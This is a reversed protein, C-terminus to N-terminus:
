DDITAELWQEPEGPPVWLELPMRQMYVLRATELAVTPAQEYTYPCGAIKASEKYAWVVERWREKDRLEYKSMWKVLKEAGASGTRYCGPINDTGDGSIAQQWFFDRADDASVDYFVKKQYNYHWGPIQDLDKDTTSVVYPACSAAMMHARISVEDDAEHGVVVLAGWTDTLFDRIAQYHHPKHSAVRNGKYQRVTALKERFNGPGTLLVAIRPDGVKFKDKTAGVISKIQQSVLHLAHTVPEPVVVPERDLLIWTKHKAMFRKMSEAATINKRKNKPDPRPAFHAEHLRGKTDEFVARYELRQAAFGSRYVIPDADIIIQM